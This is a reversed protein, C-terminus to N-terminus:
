IAQNPEQIPKLDTRGPVFLEFKGKVPETKYVGIRINLDQNMKNVAEVLAIYNRDDMRMGAIVSHLIMKRDYKQIGHGRIYDVVREEQEYAWDKGKILFQKTTMTDKDDFFDVIPKSSQYEVKMPVLWELLRDNSPKDIDSVVVPIDFEVAFGTHYQAYHTWMLLNLPDRTLSCIGVSDSAQQGFVGNDAAIGLRKIMTQKEESLQAPSLNLREGVRALLDPSSDLYETINCTEIDPACDFPDNLKSPSTFKITGDAIIQLSGADFPLYKYRRIREVITV